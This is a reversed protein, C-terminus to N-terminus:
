GKEGLPIKVTFSTGRGVMSEVTISGGHAEVVQRCYTLGLGMGTPKTTYFPTFLKGLNEPLVGVGTDSVRLCLNGGETWEEVGLVGGGPMADFANLVLNDLVRRIKEGDVWGYVVEDRFVLEVKVGDPAGLGEVTERVLAVLDSLAPTIGGTWTHERLEDLIEAARSASRDVIDLIEGDGHKKRLLYVSNRIASLPGRLDHRVMSSMKAANEVAERFRAREMAQVEELRRIRELASAVHEAMIEM